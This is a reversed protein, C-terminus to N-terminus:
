SSTHITGISAPRSYMLVVKKPAFRELSCSLAWPLSLPGKAHASMSFWVPFYSFVLFRQPGALLQLNGFTVWGASLMKLWSRYMVIQGYLRPFGVSSDWRLCKDM